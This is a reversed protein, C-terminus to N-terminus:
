ARQLKKPSRLFLTLSTALFGGYFVVELVSPNGNYGLFAKLFLGFGVKDNLIHNINWLERVLVPFAGADQLEHIGYALMGAAFFILLVGTVKFFRGLDLVRVGRNLLVGIGIAVTLGALGAGMTTSLSEDQGFAFLFLVTELGERGVSVFALLGLAWRTRGAVAEDVQERLERGISRAHRHMWVIMWSLMAAALLCLVGELVRETNKELAGLVSAIIGGAAVSAGVAAGVGIWVARRLHERDTQSLYALVIGVILAAEIGERFTILFIQLM